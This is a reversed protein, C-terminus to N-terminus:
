GAAPGLLLGGLVLLGCGAALVAVLRLQRVPVTFPGGAPGFRRRRYGWLVGALVLLLAAAALLAGDATDAGARILLAATFLAVASTRGWALATREGQLGPDGGGGGPLGAGGRGADDGASSGPRESNGPRGTGEPRQPDDPGTGPRVTV